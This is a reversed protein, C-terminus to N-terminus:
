IKVYLKGLIEYYLLQSIQSNWLDDHLLPARRVFFNLPRLFVASSIKANLKHYSISSFYSGLFNLIDNKETKLVLNRNAAILVYCFSLQGKAPYLENDTQNKLLFLFLLCIHIV